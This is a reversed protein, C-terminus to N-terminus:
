SNFSCLVPQTVSLEHCACQPLVPQLRLRVRPSPRGRGGPGPTAGKVHAWLGQAVGTLTVIGAYIHYTVHSGRGSFVLKTDPANYAVKILTFPDRQTKTLLGDVLPAMIRHTFLSCWYISVVSDFWTGCICSVAIVGSIWSSCWFTSLIFALSSGLPEM